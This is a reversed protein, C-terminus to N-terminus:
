DWLRNPPRRRCLVETLCAVVRKRLLSAAAALALDGQLEAPTARLCALGSDHCARACQAVLAVAM